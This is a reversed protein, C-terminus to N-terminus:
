RVFVKWISSSDVTFLELFGGSEELADVENMLLFTSSATLENWNLDTYLDFELLKPESILVEGDLQKCPPM